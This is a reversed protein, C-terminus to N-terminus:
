GLGVLERTTRRMRIETGDGTAAVNVSDMLAHMLQLGRGSEDDDSGAEPKWSGFDRVTLTLEGDGLSAEMELVGDAGDYAHQVANACAETVALTVESVENASLGNQRLWRGLLRRMAPLQASRAPLQLRLPRGAQEVMRIALLAIDDSPGGEGVLARVCHDCVQELDQPAEAVTRKLRELGDDLSENRREILGDTYFLLAQGPDLQFSTEDYEAAPTAGIPPAPDGEVFRTGGNASVLLPPPHGAKAMRVSGTDPNLHAYAMTAMSGPQFEHLLRNLRQLSVAPSLMEMAYARLAVRLQGMAAAAGVGHGAVDGIVIGLRGDPLSFIDYWDGGVDAQGVASVYRAAVTIDPREPLRGPLMSRQLTAAIRHEREYLESEAEREREILRKHEQEARDREMAIAATNSLVDLTELEHTSPTRAHTCYLCFTGLVSGDSAVIPSSWAARVGHALALHRLSAWNPHTTVDSVVVRKRSAAAAPCSGVSPDIAIGDMAEAFAGPVNPAAGLRLTGRREDFVMVSAVVDDRSRREAMRTLSALLEPLEAGRAALELAEKQTELMTEQRKRDTVDVMVAGAGLVAGDATQIPYFSAAWSRDEGGAGVRGRIEVNGVPLHERVVVSLHPEIEQALSPLVEAVTRGAHEHLPLGSLEALRENVRIFRLEQDFAAFAAPATALLTDLLAHSESARVRSRVAETVESGHVLVGEVDGDSALLPQFTFTFYRLESGPEAELATETAVGPEGTSLVEDMRDFLGQRDLSPFAERVPRGAVKRAGGLAMFPRNAFEIVHDPGHTVCVAAPVRAFFMGLRAREQAVGQLEEAQKRESLDRILAQIFRPEEGPDGVLTVAAHVWVERGDRDLCQEIEFAAIEGRTMRDFLDDFRERHSPIVLESLTRAHDDVLARGILEGFAPNARQIKGDLDCQVIGISASEFVTRFVEESERLAREAESRKTIDRAIGTVREVRGDAGVIVRGQSHIVRISGDLRLLRHEFNFSQSDHVAQRVITDALARDDPHVHEIFGEYTAHFTSPDFGFIRSLEDSWTVRNKSPDWEWSGTHSVAQAEALQSERHQLADVAEAREGIERELRANAAELEATRIRVAEELEGTAQELDRRAREREAVIAAFFFSTFAAAANFAQLGVMTGLLTGGGFSGLDEAAAYSAVSIVAL